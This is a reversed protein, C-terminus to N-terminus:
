DALAIEEDAEALAARVSALYEKPGLPKPVFGCLGAALMHNLREQQVYGTCLMIRIDPQM